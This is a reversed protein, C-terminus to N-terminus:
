KVDWANLTKYAWNTGQKQIDDYYNLCREKMDNTISSSYLDDGDKLQEYSYGKDVYKLAIQFLLKDNM